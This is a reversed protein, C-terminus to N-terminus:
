VSIRRMWDTQKRARPWRTRCTEHVSSLRLQSDVDDDGPVLGQTQANVSVHLVHICWWTLHLGVSGASFVLDADKIVTTYKRGRVQVSPSLSSVSLLVFLLREMEM